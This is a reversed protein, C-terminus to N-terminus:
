GRFNLLELMELAKKFNEPPESSFLMRKGTVPHEFGLIEAHLAQGQLMDNIVKLKPSLKKPGYWPDGLVPFGHDQCHVRVQHTRGTKLVVKLEAAGKFLELTKFESKAVKGRTVKTSFKKRDGDKRGHLTEWIGSPPPNGAVLVLYSRDVSHDHFQLALHLHVSEKKAIVMLGSTDKDLRHVIGPRLPDGSSIGCAYLIGNVLTGDPHGAAPHVVLGQPKNVVVLYEDEYRIDLPINQAIAKMPKPAPIDLTVVQGAKLKVAPKLVEVSDIKVFGEEILHKLHSRTIGQVSNRLFLDVRTGQNDKKIQWNYQSTFESGTTV